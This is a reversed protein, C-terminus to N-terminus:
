VWTGLERAVQAGIDNEVYILRLKHVDTDNFVQDPLALQENIWTSDEPNISVNFKDIFNKFNRLDETTATATEPIM